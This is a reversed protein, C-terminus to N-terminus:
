RVDWQAGEGGGRWSNYVSVSQPALLHNCLTTPKVDAV